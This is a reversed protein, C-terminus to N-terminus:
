FSEEKLCRVQRKKSYPTSIEWPEAGVATVAAAEKKEPGAGPLFKEKAGGEADVPFTLGSNGVTEDDLVVSNRNVVEM